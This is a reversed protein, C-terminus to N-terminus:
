QHLHTLEVVRQLAQWQSEFESPTLYSLSSHISKNMYVDDLLRGLQHYINHYNVYETVNVHEEEITRMLREANQSKHNLIRL